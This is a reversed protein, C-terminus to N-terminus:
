ESSKSYGLKELKELVKQMAEQGIRQGIVMSETTIYPTVELTKKGIPSNYFAVLELIEEKTYYKTYIPALEEMLSNSTFEKKFEAWVEEPVNLSTIMPMQIMVDIMKSLSQDLDMAEMLQYVPEKPTEQAFSHSGIGLTLALFLFFKKM